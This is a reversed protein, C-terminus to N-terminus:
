FEQESGIFFKIFTQFYCKELFGVTSSIDKILLILYIQYAVVVNDLHQPWIVGYTTTCSCINLM